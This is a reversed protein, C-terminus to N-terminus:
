GTLTVPITSFPQDDIFFILRYAGPPAPRAGPEAPRNFSLGTFVFTQQGDTDDKDVTASVQGSDSLSRDSSDFLEIKYQFKVDRVGSTEKKQEVTVLAGFNQDYGVTEIVNGRTAKGGEISVNEAAIAQKVDLMKAAPLPNLFLNLSAARRSQVVEERAADSYSKKSLVVMHKGPRLSQAAIPATGVHHGDVTVEAGPNTTVTLDGDALPGALFLWFLLAVLLLGAAAGAGLWRLTGGPRSKYAAAREIPGEAIGAAPTLLARGTPEDPVGRAVLTRESDELELTRGGTANTLALALDASTAFRQAPDKALARLVIQELDSAIEPRIAAPPPPASVVHAHMVTQPSGQFPPAGTLMEYLVVGLSYVDSRDDVVKAQAQEPSMYAPTGMLTGTLTISSVDLARAIGFDVLTVRDNPDLYINAPKVDRHVVHHRHAYDLAVAAQIAIGVSRDIAMPGRASERREELVQKLDHGTLLKMAIYNVGDLEGCDYVPVIHPYDLRAASRAEALFRAVFAQDRALAPLLVKLAVTRDLPVHTAEYVTSMGGRGIQREIRYPGIRDGPRPVARDGHQASIPQEM